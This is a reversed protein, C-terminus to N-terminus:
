FVGGGVIFVREEERKVWKVVAGAGQLVAERRAGPGAVAYMEFGPAAWALATHQRSVVHHVKLHVNKAHVSAHLTHYLSLLRRHAVLDMDSPEAAATSNLPTPSTVFQVHPKSRYVYHLLPTGPTLSIPTARGLSLSSTIHTFSSTKSLTSILANRMSQLSYFSDKSASILIIAVQDNTSSPTTKNNNSFSEDTTTQEPPDVFSIYMYLYGTKNFGPLCLPIWNEGGAAKIGNTQFLMNFILQLDGPHLSHKRPRIVSVLRGGAVILGYLLDDTRTQLMASTIAQRHTKRLKLCELASLLTPLSGKTFTDALASLLPETGQLPKRLDTSPRFSFYKELNPLTLTSLIQMYLADLHVRLQADSEGLKSIAVLYLPGKSLVAFRAHGATFGYLKDDNNEYFSIITQIVGIYGSILNDDGHRNYIPKGASSLILFHKKKAKWANMLTEENSNDPDLQGIDDFEHCFDGDVGGDQVDTDTGIDPLDVQTSSGGFVAGLLSETDGVTGLTPATSRISSTDAGSGADQARLRKISGFGAQQKGAPTPPKANSAYSDRSGDQYAHTHVDTRSVATTATPQLGPRLKTLKSSPTSTPGHAQQQSSGPRPPLPPREGEDDSSPKLSPSENNSANSM